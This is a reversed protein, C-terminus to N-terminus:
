LGILFNKVKYADSDLLHIIKDFGGYVMYLNPIFFILLEKAKMVWLKQLNINLFKVQTDELQNTEFDCLLLQVFYRSTSYLGALTM